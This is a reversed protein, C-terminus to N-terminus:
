RGFATAANGLGLAVATSARIHRVKPYRKEDVMEFSTPPQFGQALWGAGEMQRHAARQPARTRTAQVSDSGSQRSM